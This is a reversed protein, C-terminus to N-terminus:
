HLYKKKFILILFLFLNGTNAPMAPVHVCLRWLTILLDINLIVCFVFGALNGEPPVM